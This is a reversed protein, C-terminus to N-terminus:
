KVSTYDQIKLTRYIETGYHVPHKAGAKWFRYDASNSCCQNVHSVHPTSLKIEQGRYVRHGSHEPSSAIWGPLSDAFLDKRIHEKGTTCVKTHQKSVNRQTYTHTHAHASSSTHTCIRWKHSAFHKTRKQRANGRRRMLVHRLTETRAEGTM